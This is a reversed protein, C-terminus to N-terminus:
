AGSDSVLSKGPIMLDVTTSYIAALKSAFGVGVAIDEIQSM